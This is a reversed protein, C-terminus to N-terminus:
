YVTEDMVSNGCKDCWDQGLDCLKQCTSCAIKSDPEDAGLPMYSSQTGTTTGGSGTYGGYSTSGVGGYGGSTGGSYGGSWSQGYGGTYSGGSYGGSYGGYGGSTGISSMRPDAIKATVEISIDGWGEKSPDTKLFM